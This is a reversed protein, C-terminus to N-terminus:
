WLGVTLSQGYTVLIVFSRMKKFSMIVTKIYIHCSYFHQKIKRTNGWIKYPGTRKYTVHGEQFKTL